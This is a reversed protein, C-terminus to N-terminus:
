SLARHASASPRRCITLVTHAVNAVHNSPSPSTASSATPSTRRFTPRRWLQEVSPGAVPIDTPAKASFSARVPVACSRSRPVQQATARVCCLARNSSSCAAIKASGASTRGAGPRDVITRQVAVRSVEAGPLLRLLRLGPGAQLQRRSRISAKSSGSARCSQTSAPMRGSWAAPRAGENQQDGVRMRDRHRRPPPGGEVRWSRPPVGPDARLRTLARGDTSQLLPTSLAQSYAMDGVVDTPRCSSPTPRATPSGGSPCHLTRGDRARGHRRASGLCEGARQPGSRAATPRSRRQAPVVSRGPSGLWALFDDRDTM